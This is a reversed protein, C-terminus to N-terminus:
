WVTMCRVPPTVPRLQGRPARRRAGGARSMWLWPRVAADDGGALVVTGGPRAGVPGSMAHCCAPCGGGITGPGTDPGRSVQPDPCGQENTFSRTRAQHRGEVADSPPADGCGRLVAPRLGAGDTGTRGTRPRIPSGDYSGYPTGASIGRAPVLRAQRRHGPSREATLDWGAHPDGQEPLRIARM